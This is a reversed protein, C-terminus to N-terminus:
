PLAADVCRTEKESTSIPSILASFYKLRRFLYTITDPSDDTTKKRNGFRPRLFFFSSAEEQSVLTSPLPLPEVYLLETVSAAKWACYNDM